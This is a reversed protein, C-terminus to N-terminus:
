PVVTQAVPPAPVLHEGTQPAPKASQLPLGASPQSTAVVVSTLLQPVQPLTQVRACAVAAQVFLMQVIAVQWVSQASQLLSGDSPQSVLKGVEAVWQPAQLLAQLVVLPFALQAAPWHPIVQAVPKPLQSAFTLLPQSTLRFELTSLQLEQL